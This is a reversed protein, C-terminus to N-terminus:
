FANGKIDDDFGFFTFAKQIDREWVRWEHTGPGTVYEAELGISDAHEKFKWFNEIMFDETGISFFLKPLLPNKEAVMEDLKRWSNSMSDLYEDVSDYRHMQNYTRYSRRLAGDASEMVEKRSLSFIKELEEKQADLNRPAASLAACACFKDPYNLALKLAGGGGMSLGAIFNDERKASGPFWNHVLPMLEKIIYSCSDYGLTFNDWPEYDSNGVAPMVVIIEHECAYTEINSKRIWDTYDGFTGHLLWLVRYKKGQAYFEEANKTRERDPLIINVDTNIGLYQSEFNFHVLAM